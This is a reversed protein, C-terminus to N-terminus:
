AFTSIALDLYTQTQDEDLVLHPSKDSGWTEPVYNCWLLVLFPVFGADVAQRVMGRAREFYAPDPRSLDWGGLGDGLFPQYDKSSSSRDHAIPLVSIYVANFGQTRRRSLYSGWEPESVRTFAAWVTDGLLFRDRAQVAFRDGSAAVELM